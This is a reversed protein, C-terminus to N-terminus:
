PAVPRGFHCLLGAPVDLVCRDPVALHLGRRYEQSLRVLRAYPQVGRTFISVWFFVDPQWLGRFEHGSRAGHVGVAVLTLLYLLGVLGAVGFIFYVILTRTHAKARDQAAFFDM